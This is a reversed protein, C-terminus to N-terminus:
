RRLRKPPEYEFLDSPQCELVRCLEDLTKYKIGGGQGKWLRAAMTPHLGMAKQLQYATAIGRKVAVRPVNLKVV